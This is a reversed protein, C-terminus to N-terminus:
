ALLQRGGIVAWMDPQPGIPVHILAPGGRAVADAVAQGLGQADPAFTGAIGFANALAVWDPNVLSSGIERGYTRQQIGKVNGYAGDDFVVAIVDIGHQRATALEAATFLFGGDGNVSVVVKDRHAVKVGLATAFGAGLTGQYGSGIYTRPSYVPYGSRSWYGVQTMEDVLIGDDPLAARIAGAMAAVQPWGKALGDAVSTRIRATEAAVEARPLAPPGADAAVAAALDAAGAAADALVTVAGQPSRILQEADADIRVVAAGEPLRLPGLSGFFRSGVVVVADAHQLVPFGGAPPLVRPHRDSVVGRGNYTLVIPADLRDALAAVADGADVAGGGAWVVVRQRGRLAAVASALAAESPRAPGHVVPRPGYSADTTAGLVDPGVELAYPRRRGPATLAVFADDVIGPVEDPRRARASRRIVANIAATQDPLEHLAGMGNVADGGFVHGTLCLVPSNTAYATCLAALANLVGPGPVVACVGVRGTSRAYGDAMYAAAQEHRTHVVEISGDEAVADFFWDLQVGPIGFIVDVGWRKLGEVLLQGGTRTM